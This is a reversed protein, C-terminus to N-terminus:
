VVQVVDVLTYTVTVTPSGPNPDTHNNLCSGHFCGMIAEGSDGITSLRQFEGIIPAGGWSIFDHHTGNFNVRSTQIPQFLTKGADEPSWDLATDVARVESPASDVYYLEHRIFYDDPAPVHVTYTEKFVHETTKHIIPNMALFPLSVGHGEADCLSETCNGSPPTFTGLLIGNPNFALTILYTSNPEFTFPQALRAWAGGNNLTVATMESPGVSMDGNALTYNGRFDDTPVESGRKSYLLSDDYCTATFNARIPKLWNIVLYNYERAADEETIEGAELATVSRTVDIFGDTANLADAARFTNYLNPDIDRQYGAWCGESSSYATGETTINRCLNITIPFYQLNFLDVGAVACQPRGTLVSLLKRLAARMQEKEKLSLLRRAGGTGMGSADSAGTSSSVDIPADPESQNAANVFQFSATINGNVTTTTTPTTGTSSPTVTAFYGIGGLVAWTIMGGGLLFVAMGIMFKTSTGVGAAAGSTAGVKHYTYNRGMPCLFAKHHTWSNLLSTCVYVQFHIFQASSIM